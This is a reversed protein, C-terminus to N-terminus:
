NLCKSIMLQLKCTVLPVKTGKWQWLVFGAMTAIGVVLTTIVHVSSWAYEGGAWTLALVLLTSGALALVVGFFDIAVLKRDYNAESEAVALDSVAELKREGEEAAHLLNRMWHHPRESVLEPPLDM